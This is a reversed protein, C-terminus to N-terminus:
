ARPHAQRHADQLRKIGVHTYIQTTSLSAHGLLEQVLRLDAGRNLLHPAYSHRIKHPTMDMPLDALALYEKLLLQVQRVSLRKHKQNILVPADFSTSNAFQTKFQQLCQMAVAGLPCLREKQGKGMVRAIGQDTDINGYNLGVLESVRVGGGYLLEMMLQDRCAKFPTIAQQQLLRLPGGLLQLMQRETLYKPLSKPLRPLSVSAFPNARIRKRQLLFKCFSRLASFHNHLTKRSLTAQSEMLYRRVQLSDIQDFDGSWQQHHILWHMFVTIAHQYNRLTYPSLRRESAIYQCFQELHQQAEVPIEASRNEPKKM